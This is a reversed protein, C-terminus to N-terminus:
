QALHIVRDCRNALENDHTVVIITKGANKLKQLHNFVMNKNEEDLSGTPEDALVLEGPKLMVRALAIRQAEGGSLTYVKQEESDDMGVRHLAKKILQKKEEKTKRRYRLALMLNEEVTLQDILAYNQFLYSIHRRIMRSAESSDSKPAKNGFLMYSGNECPEILGIMNLLTSKGSGSPGTIAVLENEEITLSLHDFLTKKGFAKELNKMEIISM